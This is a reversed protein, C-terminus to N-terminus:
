FSGVLWIRVHEVWEAALLYLRFFFANVDVRTFHLIKLIGVAFWHLVAPLLSFSFPSGAFPLWALCMINFPFSTKCKWHFWCLIGLLYVLSLFSFHSLQSHQKQEQQPESERSIRLLLYEVTATSATTPTSTSERKAFLLDPNLHFLRNEMRGKWLSIWYM